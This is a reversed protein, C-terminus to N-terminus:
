TTQRSSLQSTEDVVALEGEPARDPGTHGTTHGFRNWLEDAVEESQLGVYYRMTTNVSTHRMLRQLVTVWETPSAWGL